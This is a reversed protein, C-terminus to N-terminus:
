LMDAVAESNDKLLQTPIQDPGIAKKPDLRQIM